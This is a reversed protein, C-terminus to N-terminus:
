VQAGGGGTVRRVDQALSDGAALATLGLREALALRQENKEVVVPVGGLARAVIAAASGIPGFGFVVVPDGAGLSGRKLAHLAVAIPEKLAGPVYVVSNPIM